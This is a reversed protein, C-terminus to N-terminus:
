SAESDPENREGLFRRMEAKTARWQNGSRFIQIYSGDDFVIRNGQRRRRLTDVSLEVMEAIEPMKHVHSDVKAPM